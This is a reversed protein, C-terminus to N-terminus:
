SKIGLSERVNRLTLEKAEHYIVNFVTTMISDVGKGSASMDFQHEGFYFHTFCSSYDSIRKFGMSLMLAIIEPALVNDKNEM